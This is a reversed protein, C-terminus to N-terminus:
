ITNAELILDQIPSSPSHHDSLHEEAMVQFLKQQCLLAKRTPMKKLQVALGKCFHDFENEEELKTDEAIKQLKELADHIHSIESSRKTSIQTKQSHKAPEEIQCSSLDNQYLSIDILNNVSTEEEDEGTNLPIIQFM